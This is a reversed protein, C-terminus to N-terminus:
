KPVRLYCAWSLPFVNGTIKHWLSSFEKIDRRDVQDLLSKVEENEEPNLKLDGKSWEVQEMLGELQVVLDIPRDFEAKAELYELERDPLRAGSTMVSWMGEFGSCTRVGFVRYFKDLFSRENREMLYEFYRRPIAKNTLRRWIERIESPKKGKYAEYFRDLKTRPNRERSLCVPGLELDVLDELYTAPIGEGGSLERWKVSFGRRTKDEVGDYFSLLLLKANGNKLVLNDVIQKLHEEGVKIVPRHFSLEKVEAPGAGPDEAERVEGAVVAESFRVSNPSGTPSGAERVEGELFGVEVDVDVDEIVIEAVSAEGEPDELLTAEHLGEQKPTIGNMISERQCNEDGYSREIQRLKYGFYLKRFFNWIGCAKQASKIQATLQHTKKLLAFSGRLSQFEGTASLLSSKPDVIMDMLAEIKEEISKSHWDQKLDEPRSKFKIVSYAKTHDDKFFEFVVKVRGTTHPPRFLRIGIDRSM